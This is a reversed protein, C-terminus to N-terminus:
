VLLTHDLLQCRKVRSRKKAQAVSVQRKFPTRSYFVLREYGPDTKGGGTDGLSGSGENNGSWGSCTSYGHTFPIRGISRDAFVFEQCQFGIWLRTRRM